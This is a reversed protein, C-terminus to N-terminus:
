HKGCLQEEIEKRFDIIIQDDILTEGEIDIIYNDKNDSLWNCAKDIFEEKSHQPHEDAWKAGDIFANIKSAIHTTDNIFHKQVESLIQENRTM